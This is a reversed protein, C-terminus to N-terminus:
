EPFNMRRVLDTFRPDNRLSVLLPEGRILVLSSDKLKYCKELWEFALNKNGIYAAAMACRWPFFEKGDKNVYTNLLSAAKAAHQLKFQILIELFDRRDGTQQEKELIAEQVQNNLLYFIVLGDNKSRSLVRAKKTANIADEYRGVWSYSTALNLLSFSQLPDAAVSEEGMRIAESSRGLMLMM